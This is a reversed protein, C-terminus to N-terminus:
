SEGNELYEALLARAREMTSVLRYRQAAGVYLQRFVDFVGQVTSSPSVIVILPIQPPIKDAQQRLQEFTNAPLTVPPPLHLIVGYPHDVEAVRERARNQATYFAEWTWAGTFTIRLITRTDDDWAVTVPM